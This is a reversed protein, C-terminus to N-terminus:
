RAARAAQPRRQVRLGTLSRGRGRAAGAAAGCVARCRRGTSAPRRRTTRARGRYDARRDAGPSARPGARRRSLDGRSRAARSFRHGAASGAKRDVNFTARESLLTQVGKALDAFVDAARTTTVRRQDATGADGGVTPRAPASPRSTTSTSSGRKPSAGSSASWRATSARLRPRAAASDPRAGAPRHREEARRHVIRDIAPDPM